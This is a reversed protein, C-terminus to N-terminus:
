EPWEWGVEAKLKNQSEGVNSVSESWGISVVDDSWSAVSGSRQDWQPVIMGDHDLELVAMDHSSKELWDEIRKGGSNKPQPTAQMWPDMPSLPMTLDWGSPKLTKVDFSNWGIDLGRSQSNEPLEWGNRVSNQTYQGSNWGNNVLTPQNQQEVKWTSNANTRQPSLPSSTPKWPQSNGWQNQCVSDPAHSWPDAPTGDELHENQMDIVQDLQPQSYHVMQQSGWSSDVEGNWNNQIISDSFKHIFPKQTPLGWGAPVTTISSSLDNRRPTRPNDRKRSQSRSEGRHPSRFRDKDKQSSQRQFQSQQSHPNSYRAADNRMKPTTTNVLDHRQKQKNYDLNESAPTSRSRRMNGRRKHRDSEDDPLWEYYTRGIGQGGLGDVLIEVPSTKKLELMFQKLKEYDPIETPGLGRAYEVFTGFTLPLGQCMDNSTCDEKKVRIRNWDSM